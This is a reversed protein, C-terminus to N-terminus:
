IPKEEQGRIKIKGKDLSALGKREKKKKRKKGEEEVKKSSRNTAKYLSVNSPPVKKKWPDGRQFLKRPKEREEGEGREDEKNSARQEKGSALKLKSNEYALPLSLYKRTIKRPQTVTSDTNYRKTKKEEEGGKCKEM